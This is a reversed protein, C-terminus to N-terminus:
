FPLDDELETNNVWKMFDDRLELLRIRDIENYERVYGCKSLLTYAEHRIQRPVGFTQHSDNGWVLKILWNFQKQTLNYTKM